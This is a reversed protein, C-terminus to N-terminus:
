GLLRRRLLSTRNSKRAPKYLSQQKQQRLQQQNQQRLQQQYQQWQQLRQQWQQYYEQQQQRAKASMVAAIMPDETTTTGLLKDHPCEYNPHMWPYCPVALLEEEVTANSAETTSSMSEDGASHAVNSRMRVARDRVQNM